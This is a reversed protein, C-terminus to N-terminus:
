ATERMVEPIITEMPPEASIVEEKPKLNAIEDLLEPRKMAYFKVINDFYKEIIKVFAEADDLNGDRFKEMKAKTVNIIISAECRLKTKLNDTVVAQENAIWKGHGTKPNSWDKIHTKSGKAPLFYHNLVLYVDKSKESM